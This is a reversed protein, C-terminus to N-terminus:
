GAAGFGPHTAPWGSYSESRGVADAYASVTHGSVAGAASVAAASRPHRGLLHRRSLPAGALTRTVFVPDVGIVQWTLRDSAPPPSEGCVGILAFHLRGDALQSAVEAESWSTCTSVPANPHATVLRDVLGGLLPGHTGGLRFREMPGCANAFRVAEQQLESVAPLVLRARELVLEGLPAPRAGTHNREFLPGGPAKGIRRLQTSPAPQALGLAAAAKTLSGTGAISRVARARSCRFSAKGFRCPLKGLPCFHPSATGM